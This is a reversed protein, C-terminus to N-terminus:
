KEIYELIVQCKISYTPELTPTADLEFRSPRGHPLDSSPRGHPLDSSSSSTGTLGLM